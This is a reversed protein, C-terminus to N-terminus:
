DVETIDPDRLDRGVRVITDGNRNLVSIDWMQMTGAGILMPQHLDPSVLAIANILKGELLLLLHTEGSIRVRGGKGATSLKKAALAPLMPTGEPLVDKRVITHFSGTDVVADVGVHKRNGTTIRVRRIPKSM